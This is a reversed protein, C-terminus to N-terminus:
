DGAVLAARLRRLRHRRWHLLMQLRRPLTAELRRKAGTVLQPMDGPTVLKHALLSAILRNMDRKAAPRERWGLKEGQAMRLFRDLTAAPAEGWLQRLMPARTKKGEAALRVSNSQEHRRYNYLQQPLNAFRARTQWLMRWYLDREEGIRRGPQYGGVARLLEGRAMVTTYIFSVGVFNDLVILSHAPPVNLDFLAESLDENLARGSTGVAGIDANADLFDVQMQLRQPLSIDDCDMTTIYDGRAHEIGLNRADAIGRNTALQYVRVRRDRQECARMVCISNDRSGDDVLILEFDAFTQSLVSDIAAALYKEGNYVPMIVSVRPMTRRCLREAQVTQEIM